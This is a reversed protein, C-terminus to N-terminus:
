VPVPPLHEILIQRRHQLIGLVLGRHIHRIIGRCVVRQRQKPRFIRLDSQYLQVLVPTKRFPIIPRQLLDLGLIVQQQIGIDLHRVMPQCRHYFQQIRMLIDSSTLRFQQTDIIAIREFICPRTPSEDVTQAIGETTSTKEVRNFLILPLIIVLCIHM